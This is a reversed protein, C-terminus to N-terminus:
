MREKLLNRCEELNKPSFRMGEMRPFLLLYPTIITCTNSHKEVRFQVSRILNEEGQQKNEWYKAQWLIAM